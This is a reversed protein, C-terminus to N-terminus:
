MYESSFLYYYFISGSMFPNFVIIAANTIVPAAIVPQLSVGVPLAGSLLAASIMPLDSMFISFLRRVGSASQAIPRM